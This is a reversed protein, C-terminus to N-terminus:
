PREQIYIQMWLQCFWKICLDLLHPKGTNFNSFCDMSLISLLEGGLLIMYFNLKPEM